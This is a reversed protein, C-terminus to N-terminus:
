FEPVLNAKEIDSLPLSVEQEEVEVLINGDEVGKLTGKFNRQGEVPTRTRVKVTHGIFRRFHAETFLPRNLGPSSVELMYQERIPDEVDLIGSVQHSVRGCDDVTIGDESDIYIRLLGQRGQRLYEVGVLEYGLVNIAPELLAQLQAQQRM